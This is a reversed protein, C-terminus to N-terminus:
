QVDTLGDWILVGASAGPKGQSRLTIVNDRGPRMAPSVDITCEEGDELDKEKFRIGNVIVDLHNLGPNGNAITLTGEEQPLDLYTDSTPKGKSRIVSTMVPDCETVHHCTDVVALKVRSSLAPDVKTAQIFVNSTTGESFGPVAVTANTSELVLIGLLGSNDQARITISSSTRSALVCTPSEDDATLPLPCIICAALCAALAAGSFQSYCIAVCAINAEAKRPSLIGLALSMVVLLPIGKKM